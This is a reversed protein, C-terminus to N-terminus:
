AETESNLDICFAGTMYYDGGNEGERYRICIKDASKIDKISITELVSVEDEGMRGYFLREKNIENEGLYATMSVEEKMSFEMGVFKINLVCEGEKKIEYEFRPTKEVYGLPYVTIKNAEALAKKIKGFLKKMDGGNAM